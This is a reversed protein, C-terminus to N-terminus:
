HPQKSAGLLCGAFLAPLYWKPDSTLARWTMHRNEKYGNSTSIIETISCRRYRLIVDQSRAILDCACLFFNTFTLFAYNKFYITHLIWKLAILTKIGMIYHGHGSM